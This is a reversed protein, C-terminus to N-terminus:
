CSRGIVECSGYDGGKIEEILKYLWKEYANKYRNSKVLYIDDTKILSEFVYSLALLEICMDFQSNINVIKINTEHYYQTEFDNAAKVILSALENDNPKLRALEPERIRLDQPTVNTLKNSKKNKM